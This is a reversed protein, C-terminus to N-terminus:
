PQKLCEDHNDINRLSIMGQDPGYEWTLRYKKTVYAEFVDGGFDGRAQHVKHTKLSPHRPNEALLKITKRTAEKVSEPFEKVKKEFPLPIVIKFSTV